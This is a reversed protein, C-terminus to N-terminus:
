AMDLHNRRGRRRRIRRLGFVEGVRLTPEGIHVPLMLDADENRNRESDHSPFRLKVIFKIVLAVVVVLTMILSLRKIGQLIYIFIYISFDSSM